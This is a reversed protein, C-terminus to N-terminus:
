VRFVTAKRVAVSNSMGAQNRTSGEPVYPKQNKRSEAGLLERLIDEIKHSSEQTVDYGRTNVLIMDVLGWGGVKSGLSGDKGIVQYVDGKAPNKVSIIYRNSNEAICVKIEANKDTVDSKLNKAMSSVLHPAYTLQEESIERMDPLKVKKSGKPTYGYRGEDPDNFIAVYHEPSSAIVEKEGDVFLSSSKWNWRWGPNHFNVVTRVRENQHELTIKGYGSRTVSPIVGTEDLLFKYLEWVSGPIADIDIENM